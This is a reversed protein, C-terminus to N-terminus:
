SGAGLAAAATALLVSFRGGTVFFASGALFLTMLVQPVWLVSPVESATDCSKLPVGHCMRIVAGAMGATIAAMMVMMAVAQLTMGSDALGTLIWFKGFFVPFPPIGSLGLFLILWTWGIAPDTTILGRTDSINKSGSRKQIAATTLFLGGKVISHAALHVMAGFLGAGGVAIGALAIGMNEVSSYALMRKFNVVRVAYVCTVFLSAMSVTMLLPVSWGTGGASAVIRHFRAIGLMSTNLLAGSLLASIAPSAESHADPLWPHMPALGAKTGLGALIFAFSIKLIFPDMKGAAAVLDDFFLGTEPATGMSLFTIGVFALSIGISCIFLYKWAAELANKSGSFFILPATVLTTAEIFVWYLGAHSSLVAGNMAAIFAISLGSTMRARGTHDESYIQRALSPAVCAFLLGQVIVLLRAAPDAVFWPAWSAQSDFGILLAMFLNAAACLGVALSQVLRSRSLISIVALPIPTLIFLRTLM